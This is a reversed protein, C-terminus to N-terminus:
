SNRDDLLQRGENLLKRLSEFGRREEEWKEKEKELEWKQEKLSSVLEDRGSNIREIVLNADSRKPLVLITNNQDHSLTNLGYTTLGHDALKKEIKQVVIDGLRGAGHLVRLLGATVQLGIHGLKNAELVAQKLEEWSECKSEM